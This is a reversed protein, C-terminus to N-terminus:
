LSNEHTPLVGEPPWPLQKIRFFGNAELWRRSEHRLEDAIGVVEYRAKHIAVLAAEESTFPVIEMMRKVDCEVMIRRQEVADVETIAHASDQARRVVQRAMINPDFTFKPTSQGPALQMFARLDFPKRGTM